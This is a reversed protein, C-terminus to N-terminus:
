VKDGCQKKPAFSLKSNAIDYVVLTNQQQYSGFINFDMGDNGLMALCVLGNEEDFMLYNKYPLELAAGDFQFVFKPFKNVIKRSPLNFCYDYTAVYKRPLGIQRALEQGVAEFTSSELYTLLTGSDIVMGGSGDNQFGFATSNIPVSVKNITIGKLSLYYLSTFPDRPNRILPTTRAGRPAHAGRGMLLSGTNNTGYTPLCHSFASVDLQSIFSDEGRGLGLSGAGGCLVNGVTYYACGFQVGLVKKDGFWLTETALDGESESNDDYTMDFMCQSGPRQKSCDRCRTDPCKLATYSTSNAPAFLPTPQDSCEVCPACQTWTLDSATALFAPFPVPPTGISLYALYENHGSYRIPAKVNINTAAAQLWQLRKRSRDLALRLLETQNLQKDHDVHKVMTNFNFEM